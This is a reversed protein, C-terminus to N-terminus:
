PAPMQVAAQDKGAAPPGWESNSTPSGAAGELTRSRQAATGTDNPSTPLSLFRLGLQLSRVPSMVLCMNGMPPVHVCLGGPGRLDM